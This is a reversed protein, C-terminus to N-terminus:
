RHLPTDRYYTPITIHMYVHAGAIDSLTQCQLGKPRITHLLVYQPLVDTEYAM